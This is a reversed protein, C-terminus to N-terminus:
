RNNIKWEIYNVVNAIDGAEGFMGGGCSACTCGLTLPKANLSLDLLKATLFRKGPEPKDVMLFAPHRCTPHIYAYM